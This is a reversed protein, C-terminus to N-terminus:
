KDPSYIPSVEDPDFEARKQKDPSYIPSVEDPDFEARRQKDPSYIPSVEDPDFETPAALCAVSISQLLLMIQLLKNMLTTGASASIGMSSQLTPTLFPEISEIRFVSPVIASAM